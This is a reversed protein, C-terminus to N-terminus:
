VYGYLGRVSVEGTRVTKRTGDALRVILGFQADIDEAVAHEQGATWLLRVEKGLTVCRRRYEQTYTTLEGGLAEDLQYLEEILAAALVARETQYGEMALSTALQAVEGTFDEQAHHVNVGVGLVLATDSGMMQTEALIGCLKRGNLVLDNTWKIAVEAGSVREVARAAAVAAMGTVCSVDRGMARLLVSLYLGKGQPSQFSRGMRGRGASQADAIVVSRHVAGALAARKLYANTSDLQPFVELAPCATIKLIKEATLLSRVSRERNECETYCKGTKKYIKKKGWM